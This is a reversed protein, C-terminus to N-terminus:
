VDSMAGSSGLTRHKRVTYTAEGINECLIHQSLTATAKMLPQINDASLAKSDHLRVVRTCDSWFRPLSPDM